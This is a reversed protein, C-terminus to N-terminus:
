ESATAQTRVMYKSRPRDGEWARLIVIILGFLTAAMGVLFYNVVADWFTGGWSISVVSALIGSTLGLILIGVIKM